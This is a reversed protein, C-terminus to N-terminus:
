VSMVTHAFIFVDMLIMVLAVAIGGTYKANLVVDAIIKLTVVNQVSANVIKM